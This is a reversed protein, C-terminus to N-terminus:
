GHRSQRQEVTWRCSLPDYKVRYKALTAPKCGAGHNLRRMLDTQQKKYGHKNYYTRCNANVQDAKCKQYLLHYARKREAASDWQRQDHLLRFLECCRM